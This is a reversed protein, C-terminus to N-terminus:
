NKTTSYKKKIFKKIFIYFCFKLFIEFQCKTDYFFNLFLDKAAIETCMKWLVRLIIDISQANEYFIFAHICTNFSICYYYNLINKKHNSHPKGNKYMMQSIVCWWM